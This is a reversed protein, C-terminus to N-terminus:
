NKKKPLLTWTVDPSISLIVLAWSQQHSWFCWSITLTFEASVDAIPAKCPDNVTGRLIRHDYVTGRLIRPRTCGDYVIIKKHSLQIQSKLVQISNGMGITFHLLEQFRWSRKIREKQFENFCLAIRHCTARTNWNLLTTRILPHALNWTGETKIHYSVVGSYTM